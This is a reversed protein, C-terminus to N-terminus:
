ARSLGRHAGQGEGLWQHESECDSCECTVSGTCTDTNFAHADRYYKREQDLGKREGRTQPESVSQTELVSQTVPESVSQTEPTIESARERPPKRPRGGKRGNAANVAQRNLVEERTPQYQAHHRIVYVDGDQAWWGVALLEPVAEPRRAFRRLDDVPVRCNLLKRASWVLGESHLRYAADSLNWCDDPFDDSLKAFTM